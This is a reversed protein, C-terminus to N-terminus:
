KRPWLSEKRYLFTKSNHHNGFNSRYISVFIKRRRIENSIYKKEALPRSSDEGFVITFDFHFQFSMIKYIKFSGKAPGKIKSERYDAPVRIKPLKYM